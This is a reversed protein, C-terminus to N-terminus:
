CLQFVGNGEDLVAFGSDALRNRWWDHNEVILHTNRGDDLTKDSPEMAVVILAFECLSEIHELVADLCQPEIHELVDTCVLLEAPEPLEPCTAPDYSQVTIDPAIEAMRKEFTRKGAGYDIITSYGNQECIQLATDAWRHGIIGYDKRKDHLRRNQEAYEPSILLAM